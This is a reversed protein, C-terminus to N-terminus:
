GAYINEENIIDLVPAPLLFDTSRGEALWERIRSATIDLATVPQFYLLGTAQESLRRIDDTEHRSIFDSLEGTQPIKNDPRNMVILHCYEMIETWRYWGALGAFADMGVVLCVPQQMGEDWFSQLTDITYSTGNRRLEREDISFGSFGELAAHLLRVRQESSAFPAPRHSPQHCPIFRLEDLGLAEYVEVAPRLHGFHVPDFTGGFIGIM